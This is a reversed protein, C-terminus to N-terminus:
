MFCPAAQIQSLRVMLRACCPRRREKASRDRGWGRMLGVVHVHAVNCAGPQVPMVRVPGNCHLTVLFDERLRVRVAALGLDSLKAESHGDKGRRLLVNEQTAEHMLFDPHPTSNGCQTPSCAATPIIGCSARGRRCHGRPGLGPSPWPRRVPKVDRHIVQPHAAHLHALAAALGLLWHLADSTHYACAPVEMAAASVAATPAAPTQGQLLGARAAATLRHQLQIMDLLNGGELYELVVGTTTPGAAPLRQQVTCGAVPAAASALFGNTRTENWSVQAATSSLARFRGAVFCDLMAM